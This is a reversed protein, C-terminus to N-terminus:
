DRRAVVRLRKYDATWQGGGYLRPRLKREVLEVFECRQDADLRAIYGTAFMDLWLRMGVPGGSLPTPRDFLSAQTVSLGHNDLLSSYEETDPFYFDQQSTAPTRVHVQDLASHIAEMILSINGRGGFEAVFRGGPKLARRIGAIVREPPRVWHLVANSFVADFEEHYPLHRANALDFRLYPYHRQAQNIMGPASDVGVATAGSKAIIATLHGTGCGLDLIREGSLPALIEVLDDGLKWVFSHGTDYLHADWSKETM